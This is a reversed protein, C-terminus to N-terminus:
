LIKENEEKKIITFLFSTIYAPYKSLVNGENKLFEACGFMSSKKTRIKATLM